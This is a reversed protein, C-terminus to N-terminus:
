KSEDSIPEGFDYNTDNQAYATFLFNIPLLISAGSLILIAGLIPILRWKPVVIGYKLIRKRNYM